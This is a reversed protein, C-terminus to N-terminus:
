NRGGERGGTEAEPPAAEGDATEEVPVAKERAWSVKVLDGRELPSDIGHRSATIKGGDGAASGDLLVASIRLQGGVFSKEIVRALLDPSSGQTGSLPPEEERGEGASPEPKKAPDLNIWESRIALTAGSIKLINANGVFRAVFGTRPREYIEVPCGIQEFRGNRMVAIRDSMTLAEEQDHTIYIFTIGLQRQLRKLETQM